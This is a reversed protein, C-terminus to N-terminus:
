GLLGFFRKSKELKVEEITIYKEGYSNQITYMGLKLSKFLLMSEKSVRGNILCKVYNKTTEIEANDETFQNISHVTNISLTSVAAAIIDLGYQTFGTTGKAIFGFINDQSNIYFTIIFPDRDEKDLITRQTEIEKEQDYHEQPIPHKSLMRENM